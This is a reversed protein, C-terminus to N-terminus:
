RWRSRLHWIPVKGTTEGGTYWLRSSPPLEGCAPKWSCNTWCAATPLATRLKRRWLRDEAQHLRYGRARLFYFVPKWYDAICRNMAELHGIGDQDQAARVMSWATTPFRFSPTSDM